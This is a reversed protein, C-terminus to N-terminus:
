YTTTIGFKKFESSNLGWKADPLAIRTLRNSRKRSRDYYGRGLVARTVALRHVLAYGHTRRGPEDPWLLWRISSPGTLPQHVDIRMPIDCDVITNLTVLRHRATVGCSDLAGVDHAHNIAIVSIVLWERDREM